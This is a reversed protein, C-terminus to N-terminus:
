KPGNRLIAWDGHIKLRRPLPAQCSESSALSFTGHELIYAFTSRGCVNQPLDFTFILTCNPHLRVPGVIISPAGIITPGQSMGVPKDHLALFTFQGGKAYM